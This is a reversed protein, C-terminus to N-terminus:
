PTEGYPFDYEIDLEVDGFLFDYVQEMTDADYEEPHKIVDYRLWFIESDEPVLGTKKAFINKATELRSLGTDRGVQTDPLRPRKPVTSKGRPASKIVPVNVRQALKVFQRRSISRGQSPSYM